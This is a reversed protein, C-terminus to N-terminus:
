KKFKLFRLIKNVLSLGGDMEKMVQEPTKTGKEEPLPHFDIVLGEEDIPQQTKMHGSKLTFFMLNMVHRVTLDRYGRIVIHIEDGVKKAIMQESM